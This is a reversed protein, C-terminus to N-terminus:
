ATAIVIDAANKFGTSVDEWKTEGDDNVGIVDSELSDIPFNTQLAISRQPNGGFALVLAILGAAYVLEDEGYLDLTRELTFRTPDNFVAARYGGISCFKCERPKVKFISLANEDNPIGWEDAESTPAQCFYSQVWHEGNNNMFDHAQLLRERAKARIEPTFEEIEPLMITSM